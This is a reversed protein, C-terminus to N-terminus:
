MDDLMESPIQQMPCETRVMRKLAEIALRYERRNSIMDNLQDQEFSHSIDEDFFSHKGKKDVFELFRKSIELSAENDIELAGRKRMESCILLASEELKEIIDDSYSKRVDEGTVSQYNTGGFTYLFAEAVKDTDKISELKTIIRSPNDANDRIISEFDMSMTKVFVFVGCLIIYKLM